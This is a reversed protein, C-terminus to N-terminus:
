LRTTRSPVAARTWRRGEPSRSPVSAGTRRVLPLTSTWALSRVGPLASVEREISEFFQLLAADTPYLRGLPDVMMTLVSKARYGPDVSEVVLLTRLLLGAGFLLLVATAVEGVILVSRLRGGRGTVTRSDAAVIQSSSLSTAQWAPALGFLVGVLLAAGACFVIVRLDFTLTVAGPLLGVPIVTPAIKVIAAGIGAGLIGGITSLVLSETLLQRIVRRRGAGLASGIALERTRVTARALLLNAVNAAIRLPVLERCRCCTNSSCGSRSAGIALVDTM